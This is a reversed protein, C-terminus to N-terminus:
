VDYNEKLLQCLRELQWKREVGRASFHVDEYTFQAAPGTTAGRVASISAYDAASWAAERAAGRAAERAAEGPAGGYVSSCASNSALWARRAADIDYSRTFTKATSLIDIIKDSLITGNAFARAAAILERPRNDEPYQSEFLPLVREACDAAFLRLVRESILEPRLVVWFRDLVSVVTEDIELIELANMRERNGAVAGIRYEAGEWCPRWSLVDKITCTPMAPLSHDSMM